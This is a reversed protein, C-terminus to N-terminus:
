CFIGPPIGVQNFIPVSYLPFFIHICHPIDLANPKNRRVKYSRRVLIDPASSIVSSTASKLLFVLASQLLVQSECKSTFFSNYKMSISMASQSLFPLRMKYYYQDCKTIYFSIGKLILTRACQLLSLISPLHIIIILLPLLVSLLVYRSALKFNRPGKRGFQAVRLRIVM